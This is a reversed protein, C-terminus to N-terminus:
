WRQQTHVLLENSTTSVNGSVNLGALAVVNYNDLNVIDLLITSCFSHNESLSCPVWYLAMQYLFSTWRKPNLPVMRELWVICIALGPMCAPYFNFM